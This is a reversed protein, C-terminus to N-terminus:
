EKKIRTEATKLLAKNAMVAEQGYLKDSKEAEKLLEVTTEDGHAGGSSIVSIAMLRNSPEPDLLAVNLLATLAPDDYRSDDEEFRKILEKIGGQRIKKDPSKLYSELTKIYNDTLEVIHKPKKDKEETKAEDRIKTKALPEEYDKEPVNVNNNIIPQQPIVPTAAQVNSVTAGNQNGNPTTYSANATPGGIASPNYIYINVGSDAQKNPTGYVSSQPYNYIQSQNPTSVAVTQQQPVASPYKYLPTGQQINYASNNNPQIQTM